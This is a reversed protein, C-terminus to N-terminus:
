RRAVVPFGPELEDREPQPIGFEPCPNTWEILESFGAAQLSRRLSPQGFVRMALVSGVGGHFQLDDFVEWAGSRTLNVLIPSGEFDIVEYRDLHPFFERTEAAIFDTPVTLILVGGPKLLRCSGEFARHVPPEVHEFVDSALLFDLTGHLDEPPDTIDLRPERHYYTTTFSLKDALPRSIQEDDSLGMGVLDPRPPFDAIPMGQGFLEVSLSQALARHRTISDCNHCTHAERQLEHPRAECRCGCLNCTFVLTHPDVLVVV